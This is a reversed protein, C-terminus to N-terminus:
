APPATRPPFVETIPEGLLASIRYANDLSVGRRGAVLESMQARSIGLRAALQSQRIGKRALVVRLNNPRYPAPVLTEDTM